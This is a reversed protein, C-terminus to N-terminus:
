DMGNVQFFLTQSLKGIQAMVQMVKCKTGQNPRKIYGEKKSVTRKTTVTTLKILLKYM